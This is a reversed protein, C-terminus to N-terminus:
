PVKDPDSGHAVSKTARSIRHGTKVNKIVIAGRPHTQCDEYEWLLAAAGPGPNCPWCPFVHGRLLLWGLMAWGPM